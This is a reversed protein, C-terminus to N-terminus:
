RYGLVDGYGFTKGNAATLQIAGDKMGVSAIPLLGIGTAAVATNGNTATVKFSGVESAEVGELPVEFMHQGADLAGMNVTGLVQGAKGLIDVKVSQAAGKLELGGYAKGNEVAPTNGSVMAVRGILSVGQLAQLSGFQTAMNTMTKNLEQIGSVTNIQAMQSTMQANDMPNLPDQNNLQAVLMKMFKDQMAQPDAGNKTATSQANYADIESTSKPIAFM